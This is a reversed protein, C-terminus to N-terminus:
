RNVVVDATMHGDALLLMRLLLVAMVVDSTFMWGLFMHGDAVKEGSGLSLSPLLPFIDLHLLPLLLLVAMMVDVDVAM